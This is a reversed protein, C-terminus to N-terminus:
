KVEKGLEEAFKEVMSIVEKKCIGFGTIYTTGFRVRYLYEANRIRKGLTTQSATMQGRRKKEEEAQTYKDLHKVVLNTGSTEEFVLEMSCDIYYVM